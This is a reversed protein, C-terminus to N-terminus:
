EDGEAFDEGCGEDVSLEGWELGDHGCRAVAVGVGSGDGARKGRRRTRRPHLQTLLFNGM